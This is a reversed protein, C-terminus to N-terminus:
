ACEALWRALCDGCLPKRWGDADPDSSGRAILARRSIPYHVLRQAPEGCRFCFGRWPSSHFRRM